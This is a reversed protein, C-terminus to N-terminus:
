VHITRDKDSYVVKDLLSSNLNAISKIMDTINKQLSSALVIYDFDVDQITEVPMVEDGDNKKDVVCIIECYGSKNIQRIYDTGVRGAGYIIIRSSYPVLEFPFLNYMTRESGGSGNLSLEEVSDNILQGNLLSDVKFNMGYDFCCKRSNYGTIGIHQIYSNKSVFLRINNQKLCKSFEWDIKQGFSYDEKSQLLLGIIDKSFVAGAAGVDEKICLGNIEQITKHNSSNFLSIFGDTMPLFDFLEEMWDTSFILDSDANLLYQDNSEYFDAYMQWTNADAGINYGNRKIVSADPFLTGLTETNYDDSADDYIKISYDFCRNSAYFSASMKKLVSLRNYTTIGITIM